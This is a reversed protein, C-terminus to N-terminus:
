TSSSFTPLTVVLDLLERLDDSCTKERIRRFQKHFHGRMWLGMIDETTGERDLQVSELYIDSKTNTYARFLYASLEGNIQQEIESRMFTRDFNVLGEPLDVTRILVRQCAFHPDQGSVFFFYEGWLKRHRQGCFGAAIIAFPLGIASVSASRKIWFNRESTTEMHNDMDLSFFTKGTFRVPM